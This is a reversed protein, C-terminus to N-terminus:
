APERPHQRLNRVRTGSVKVETVDGAGNRTFQLSMGGVETDFRDAGTPLLNVWRGSRLCM